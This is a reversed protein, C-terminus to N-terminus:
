HSGDPVQFDGFKGVAEATVTCEGTSVECTLLDFKADEDLTPVGGAAYTDDDLWEFGSFFAYDAKAQPTLDAGTGLKLVKFDDSNESMLYTADPSLDGRDWLPYSPETAALDRTVAMHAEGTDEEPHVILGQEVDTIDFGNLADGLVEARGTAVDFRVAGRTDRWIVSGGDVAYVFAPDRGDAFAAMGEETGESNRVTEGTAQDFIVFEPKEGKPFDVWAVLSGDAKLRGERGPLVKGVQEADDGTWSWVTGSKDTFVYGVETRVFAYIDHGVDYNDSGAHITSGTAWATSVVDVSAVPTNNGNPGGGPLLTSAILGAALVSAVGVGGAVRRRRVTRDGARTIADLDVAPAELRDARETMVDKLLGTM